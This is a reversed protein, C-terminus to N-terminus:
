RGFGWIDNFGPHAGISVGHEKALGITRVMISPDGAHMGCAINASGILTMLESDNGITFKGYSEGIDANINIRM